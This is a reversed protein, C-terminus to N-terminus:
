ALLRTKAAAFEDDSLAGSAHLEALRALQMSVDEGDKSAPSEAQNSTAEALVREIADAKATFEERYGKKLGVKLGVGLEDVFTLEAVCGNESASLAVSTRMPYDSNATFGAGKTRLGAQSGTSAEIYNPGVNKVRAGLSNFYRILAEQAADMSCDSQITRRAEIRAM